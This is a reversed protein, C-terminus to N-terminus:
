PQDTQILVILLAWEWCEVSFFVRTSYRKTGNSFYTTETDNRHAIDRQFLLCVMSKRNKQGEFENFIDSTM